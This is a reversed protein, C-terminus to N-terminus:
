RRPQQSDLFFASISHSQRSSPLCRLQTVLVHQLEFLTLDGFSDDSFLHFIHHLIRVVGLFSICGDPTSSALACSSPHLGWALGCVEEAVLLPLNRCTCAQVEVNWPMTSNALVGPWIAARAAGWEVRFAFMRSCAWDLSPSNASVVAYLMPDCLPAFLLTARDLM